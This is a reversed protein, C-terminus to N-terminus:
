AEDACEGLLQEFLEVRDLSATGWLMEEFRRFDDSPNGRDNKRASHVETEADSGSREAGTGALEQRISLIHPFKPKLLNVPNAVLTGDTLTIELYDAAHRDHATGSYFEAFSGSLRTVTRAPVVPIRTVTAPFPENKCDVDVKLFCKADGAEDFSYALPSGSYYMRDTIKQCRHLHGLAVYSFRSFLAPNVQEAQGLFIRESESAKGALTFLHAALVAPIHELEPAALSDAFRRSAESALEAQSLLMDSEEHFLDLEPGNDPPSKPSPPPARRLTGASLFPLLFLALNEGKKELMVPSFSYEPNGTIHIRQTSLIRDAFSLRQASDHNGPIICIELDPFRNRATVLFSSFLEVTEAGPITRDYVDGAILLTAYDDRGLEAMLQDLMNRQDEMLSTEHLSKGLHLDATHLLKM